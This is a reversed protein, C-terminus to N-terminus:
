GFLVPFVLLNDISGFGFLLSKTILVLRCCVHRLLRAVVEFRDLGLLTPEDGDFAMSTLRGGVLRGFLVEPEANAVATDEFGGEWEFLSSDDSSGWFGEEGTDGQKRWHVVVTRM